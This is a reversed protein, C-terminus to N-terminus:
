ILGMGLIILTGVQTCSTTYALGRDGSILPSILFLDKENALATVEDDRSDVESWGLGTVHNALRLLLEVKPVQRVIYKAHSLLLTTPDDTGSAARLVM